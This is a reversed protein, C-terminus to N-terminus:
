HYSEEKPHFFDQTRNESCGVFEEFLDIQRPLLLMERKLGSRYSYEVKQDPNQRRVTVGHAQREHLRRKQQLAPADFEEDMM